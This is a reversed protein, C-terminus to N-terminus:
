GERRGAPEGHAEAIPENNNLWILTEADWQFTPTPEDDPGVQIIVRYTAHIRRQEDAGLAHWKGATIPLFMSRGKWLPFLPDQANKLMHLPIKRRADPPSKPDYM